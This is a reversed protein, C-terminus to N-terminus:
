KMMASISNYFDLAATAVKIKYAIELRVVAAIQDPKIVRYIDFPPDGHPGIPPWYLAPNVNLDIKRDAM